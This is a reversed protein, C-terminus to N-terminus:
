SQLEVRDRFENLADPNAIAEINDIQMGLVMKKVALEVVKGSITRPIARVQVIKNPVHRPTTNKRITRKINNILELDLALGERLQVFLIVREDGQWPQGVVVSDIVEDIKEVQRYIEATGIRVGGPNLVADSRGHIIVGGNDTLEAYDGHAWIGPFREFYAAHYKANDPDNWFYIPQSPFAHKCVLEGKENQVSQGNVDYVDVDMALGRCQLEGRFVPLLPNGLAFCSIIDTGGSISSLQLDSKIQQYVFDYSHPSLPSGTSLITELSDFNLEKALGLDAKEVTDLYKAGCGFTNIQHTSCIELLRYANPFTPCGDYSIIKAGLTLASIQWHWMMWGCTTFFFFKTHRKIDTHLALEKIHQLLTGGASHVICKPIGTTGSSFMIYIPHDFPLQEFQLQENHHKFDEFLVSNTLSNTTITNDLFPILVTQELSPLQAILQQSKVLCDHSKGNYRYGDITFLVKPAIQGFRDLIGQLGFDPSCSSWIAGISTTALMAIVTEICNPLMGVVRDGITVGLQRLQNAVKATAIALQQYSLSRPEGQEGIFVLADDNSRNRLLNEAFNFRAGDFWKQRYFAKDQYSLIQQPATQCVIQYYGWIQQWFQERNDVSWRWLDDYGDFNGLGQETLHCTFLWMQSNHKRSESASWILKNM